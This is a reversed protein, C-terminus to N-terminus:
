KGRVEGNRDINKPQYGNCEYFYEYRIDDIKVGADKNACGQRHQALYVDVVARFELESESVKGTLDVMGLTSGRVAGIAAAQGIIRDTSAGALISQRAHNDIIRYTLGNHDVMVKEYEQDPANYNKYLYRMDGCGTLTITVVAILSRKM